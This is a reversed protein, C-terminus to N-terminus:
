LATSVVWRQDFSDSLISRLDKGFPEKLVVVFSEKSGFDKIGHGILWVEHDSVLYRDHLEHKRPYIRFESNPFERRFRSVERRLHAVDGNLRETLFSIRRTRAFAQLFDLSEVGFFKDVIRVHGTLSVVAKSVVLRRDSWPEKGSIYIAHLGGAQHLLVKEGPGMVRFLPTGNVRRRAVADGARALATQVRVPTLSVDSNLLIESIDDASIFAQSNSSEKSAKLAWFCKTLPTTCNELAPLRSLVAKPIKSCKSRPM